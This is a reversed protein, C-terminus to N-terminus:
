KSDKLKKLRDSPNESLQRHGPGEPGNEHRGRRSQRVRELIASIGSRQAQLHRHRGAGAAATPKSISGAPFLTTTTVPKHSGADTVGYPKTWAIQYDDIVAMSLGPVKLTAMLKAVDMQLPQEGAGLHINVVSAEIRRIRAQQDEVKSQSAARLVFCGLSAGLVLVISRNLTVFPM